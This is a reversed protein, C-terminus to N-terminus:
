NKRVYRESCEERACIHIDKLFDTVEIEPFSAAWVIVATHNMPELLFRIEIPSDFRRYEVRTKNEAVRFYDIKM